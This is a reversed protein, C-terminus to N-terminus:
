GGGGRERQPCMHCLGHHLVESAGEAHEGVGHVAFGGGHGEGLGGEGGRPALADEFAERLLELHRAVVAKVAERLGKRGFKSHRGQRLIPHDHGDLVARQGHCGHLEM